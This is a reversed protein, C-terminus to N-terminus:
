SNRHPTRRNKRKSFLTLDNVIYEFEDAVEAILKNENNLAEYVRYVIRKDESKGWSLKGKILQFGGFVRKGTLKVEKPLEIPAELSTVNESKAFEGKLESVSNIETLIKK